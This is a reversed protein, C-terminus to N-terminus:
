KMQAVNVIDVLVDRTAGALEVSSRGMEKMVSQVALSAKV